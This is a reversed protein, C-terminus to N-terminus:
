KVMFLEEIIVLLHYILAFINFYNCTRYNIPLLLNLRRLISSGGMNLVDNEWCHLRLHIFVLIHLPCRMSLFGLGLDCNVQATFELLIAPIIM